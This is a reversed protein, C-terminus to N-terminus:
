ELYLRGKHQERYMVYISFLDLIPKTEEITQSNTCMLVFGEYILEIESKSGTDIFYQIKQRAEDLPLELWKKINDTGTVVDAIAIVLNGLENWFGM